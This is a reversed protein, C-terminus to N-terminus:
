RLINRIGPSTYIELQRQGRRLLYEIASFDKKDLAMNKM